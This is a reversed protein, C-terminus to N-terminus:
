ACASTLTACPAGQEHGAAEFVAGHADGGATPLVEPCVRCGISVTPHFEVDELRRVTAISKGIRKAVQGRTLM